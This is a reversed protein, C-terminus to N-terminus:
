EDDEDGYKEYDEATPEIGMILKFELPNILGMQAWEIIKAKDEEKM